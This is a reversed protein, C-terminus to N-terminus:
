DLENEMSFLNGFDYNVGSVFLEHLICLSEKLFTHHFDYGYLNGKYVYIYIFIYLDWRLYQWTLQLLLLCLINQSKKNESHRPATGSSLEWLEPVVGLCAGPFFFIRFLGHRSSECSVHCYRGHSRHGSVTARVDATWRVEILNVEDLPLSRSLGDVVREDSGLRLVYYGSFGQFLIIMIGIFLYLGYKKCVVRFINFSVILIARAPAIAM